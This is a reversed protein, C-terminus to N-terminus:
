SALYNQKKHRSIHTRVNGFILFILPQLISHGYINVITVCLNEIIWMVLDQTQIKQTLTQSHCVLHKNSIGSLIDFVRENM